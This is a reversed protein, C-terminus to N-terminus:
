YLVIAMSVITLSDNLFSHCQFDKHQSLFLQIKLLQIHIENNCKWGVMCLGRVMNVGRSGKRVGVGKGKWIGSARGKVDKKM